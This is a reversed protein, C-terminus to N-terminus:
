TKRGTKARSKALAEFTKKETAHTAEKGTLAQWRRLGADVYHPDLEMAYGVRKTQEAGMITSCAGAFMDLVIDGEQTSNALARRTLEVPKMTPHLSAEKKGQVNDRSVEWVTSSGPSADLLVPQGPQAHVHRVKKGSPAKAQVFLEAGEPTTLVVGHGITTRQAGDLGQTADVRWVTTNTRDGYFAPRVGQRAAYFCPEHAWRYDAWGLVMQTKVWIIYSNEVLGNDRLAGAFDERTASAHWVYWGADNTTHEIAAKFAKHLMDRLQGRRLDDGQLVDFDGSRAEYSVGYPPDTFVCQALQGDMLTKLSAAKTSDACLLRHPGLLWLDGARSVAKDKLTAPPPEEQPGPNPDLLATIESLGFGTLDMDLGMGKLDALETALIQTDWGAALAVKNHSLVYARKEAQSLGTLEIVPVTRLGLQRAAQYTAHGAMIGNKGDVVIPMAGYREILHKIQDIQEPPHTRANKEYPTLQGIPRYEVKLKGVRAPTTKKLPTM